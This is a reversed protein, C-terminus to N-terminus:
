QASSGAGTESTVLLRMVQDVLMTEENESDDVDWEVEVRDRGRGPHQIFARIVGNVIVGECPWGYIPEAWRRGFDKAAQRIDRGVLQGHM